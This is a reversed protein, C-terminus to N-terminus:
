LRIQPAPRRNTETYLWDYQRQPLQDGLESAIAVAQQYHDIAQQGYDSGEYTEGLRSLINAESSKNGKTQATALEAEWNRIEKQFKDSM